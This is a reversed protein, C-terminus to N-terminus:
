DNLEVIEFTSLSGYLHDLTYKDMDHSEEIGYKKPKYCNPLTRMVKRVVEIGEIKGGIGVIANVIENVWHLYAEVNEDEFM